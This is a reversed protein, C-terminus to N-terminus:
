TCSTSKYEYLTSSYLVITVQHGIVMITEQKKNPSENKYELVTSASYQLYQLTSPMERERGTVDNDINHCYQSLSGRSSTNLTRFM